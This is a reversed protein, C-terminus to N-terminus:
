YGWRIQDLQQLFIKGLEPEVMAVYYAKGYLYEKFGIRECNRTYELHQQVGFRQCYYIEQKLKRKFKKPIKVEDEKVILGTVIKRHPDQYYCTKKENIQFSYKNVINYLDQLLCFIDVNSSFSMDDAYRTYTMKRYKSFKDLEDDMEKLILNSMYPSTPAGQPLRNEFCCIEALAEAASNEYGMKLFEKVVMNQTISPFFDKIDINLINKHGIHKKANTLISRNRVFGHCNNSVKNKELIESLIWQQRLKIPQSPATIKRKKNKGSIEFVHYCELIISGLRLIENVHNRDFIVPLNKDLLNTSYEICINIYEQSYEGEMAGKLREIYKYENM